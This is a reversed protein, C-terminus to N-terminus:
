HSGPLFLSHSTWNSSEVTMHNGKAGSTPQVASLRSDTSQVFPICQQRSGERKKGRAVSIAGGENTLPSVRGGDGCMHGHRALWLVGTRAKIQTQGCSGVGLWVLTRSPNKKEEPLEHHWEQPIALHHFIIKGGEVRYFHPSFPGPPDNSGQVGGFLPSRSGQSPSGIILAM